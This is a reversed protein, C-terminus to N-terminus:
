RLLRSLAPIVGRLDGGDVMATAVARADASANFAVSVGVSAFL